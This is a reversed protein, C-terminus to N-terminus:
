VRTSLGDFHKPRTGTSFQTSRKRKINLNREDPHQIIVIQMMIRCFLICNMIVWYVMLEINLKNWFWLGPLIPERMLALLQGSSMLHLKSAIQRVGRSRCLGNLAKCAAMRLEDAHNVPTKTLLLSMLVKIGNNTRIASWMKHMVDDASNKRSHQSPTM